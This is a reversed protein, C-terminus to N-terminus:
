AILDPCGDGDLDGAQLTNATPATKPDSAQPLVEVTVDRFWPMAPAGPTKCVAPPPTLDPAADAGGEEGGCGPLSPLAIAFAVAVAVSVLSVFCVFLSNRRM